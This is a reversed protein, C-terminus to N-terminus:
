DMSQDNKLHLLKKRHVHHNTNHINAWVITVFRVVFPQTLLVKVFSSTRISLSTNLVWPECELYVFDIRSTCCCHLRIFLKEATIKIPSTMYQKQQLNQSSQISLIPLPHHFVKIFFENHSFEHLPHAFVDKATPMDQFVKNQQHILPYSNTRELFPVIKLKDLVILNVEVKM